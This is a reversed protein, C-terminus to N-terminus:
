RQMAFFARIVYISVDVARRSRIVGAAMLAGAETLVYPLFRRHPVRGNGRAAIESKVSEWEAASLLFVFDPPFRRPNGRIQENLRRTPVGYLSALDSDLIVRQGRITFTRVTGPLAAALTHARTM